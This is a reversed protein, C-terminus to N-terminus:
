CYNNRGITQLSFIYSILININSYIYIVSKLLKPDDFLPQLITEKVYSYFQKIKALTLYGELYGSAEIDSGQIILRNYGEATATLAGQALAGAVNGL